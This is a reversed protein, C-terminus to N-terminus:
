SPGMAGANRTKGDTKKRKAAIASRSLQMKCASRFTNMMRTAVSSSRSSATKFFFFADWM